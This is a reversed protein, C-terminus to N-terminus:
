GSEFPCHHSIFDLKLALAREYTPECTKYEGLASCDGVRAADALPVAASFLVAESVGL